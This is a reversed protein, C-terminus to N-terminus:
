HQKGSGVGAREQAAEELGLILCPSFSTCSITELLWLFRDMWAGMKWRGVLEAINHSYCLFLATVTRGELQEHIQSFVFLFITM